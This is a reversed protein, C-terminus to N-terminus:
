LKKKLDDLLELKDVKIETVGYNMLKQKLSGPTGNSYSNALGLSYGPTQNFSVLPDDVSFM